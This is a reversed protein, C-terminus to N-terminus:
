AHVSPSLKKAAIGSVREFRDLIVRCYEPSLEVTFCRRQTQECAILTSGSGAFADYVIDRSRTSNLILRRLLGVPKMTSHLLSRQPKPYVLISKDKGKFFAHTGHWGYAICEHMPLYDLRGIVAATKAWILLQGFKWGADLLGERLPFLMKDSNFCYLANKTTLHSRIAELWARTFTQYENDSQLHDNRIPAHITKTHCFGKKGEVYAVGYPPDTLILAAKGNDMLRSVLAADRSDGCVLRHRGLLFLDGSRISLKKM